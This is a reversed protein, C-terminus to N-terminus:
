RNGKNTVKLQGFSFIEELLILKLIDSFPRITKHFVAFLFM